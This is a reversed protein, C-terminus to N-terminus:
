SRPRIARIETRALLEQELLKIIRRCDSRVDPSRVDNLLQITAALRSQIEEDTADDLFCCFGKWFQKDM